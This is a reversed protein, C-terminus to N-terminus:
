SFVVAIFAKEMSRRGDAMRDLDLELDRKATKPWKRMRAKQTPCLYWNCVWARSARPLRCGNPGAYHCPGSWSDRLQTPPPRVGALHMFLLDTFDVWVTAHLCCPEACWPCTGKCLEDMAGDLRSLSSMLGVAHEFARGLDNKRVDVVHRLAENAAAWEMPTTWPIDTIPEPQPTYGVAVGELIREENSRKPESSM